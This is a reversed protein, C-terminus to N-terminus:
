NQKQHQEVSTDPTPSQAMQHQPAVRGGTGFSTITVCKKEFKALESGCGCCNFSVCTGFILLQSSILCPHPVFYVFYLFGLQLLANFVGVRGGVVLSLAIAFLQYVILYASACRVCTRQTAWNALVGQRLLVPESRALNAKSAYYWFPLVLVQGLLDSKTWMSVAASACSCAIIPFWALTKTAQYVEQQTLPVYTAACKELTAPSPIGIGEGSRAVLTPGVPANKTAPASQKKPTGGAPAPGVDSDNTATTALHRLQQLILRQHLTSAIGMQSLMAVDLVKGIEKNIGHDVFIPRYKELVPSCLVKEAFDHPDM